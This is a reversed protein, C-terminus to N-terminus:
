SGLAAAHTSGTPLVLTFTSGRGEKSTMEITGGHAAAVSKAFALGLGTGEGQGKTTFFPQFLKAQDEKRIGQGTDTVVIVVAGSRAECRVTVSGRDTAQLANKVLNVVVQQVRVPDVTAPIPADGLEARLEVSEKRYPDVQGLAEEVVTRIDTAIRELRLPRAIGLLDQLFRATLRRQVNIKELRSLIEPDKTRKAATATLLAINTLPTNIEHAVYSAVKGAAALREGEVILRQMDKLGSLDRAFGVFSPPGEGAIREIFLEVPFETGDKRLATLEIRKGLVPGEGTALYHALGQRHRDRLSPPILTDGLPKGLIEDRRYGFTREAAPNFDVIRGEHDMAIVPDLSTDLIAARRAESERFTREAEERELFQGVRKGLEQMMELFADDPDQVRRSFFAMVGAVHGRSQVPFAFAAHIGTAAAQTRRTFQNERVDPIWSPLGTAWVKGALGGGPPISLDRSESVFQDLGLGPLCWAGDWRLCNAKSDVRWMEGLEWGTAECISRLVKPAAEGLTWSEALARTVAYEVSRLREARIRATVDHALVLRATRGGYTFEHASVEVDIVEGDKRRHRWLGITHPSGRARELDELLAPVEDPPRIDRITMSLFEQRTYGYQRIAADNVELFRLTEIDFVWMAMPNEDFLLRYRDQM